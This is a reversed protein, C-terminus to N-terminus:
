ENKDRQPYSASYVQACWLIAVQELNTAFPGCHSDFRWGSDSVRVVLGSVCRRTLNLTSAVVYIGDNLDSGPSAGDISHGNRMSLPLGHFDELEDDTENVCM